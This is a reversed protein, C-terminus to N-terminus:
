LIFPAALCSPVPPSPPALPIGGVWQGRRQAYTAHAGQCPWVGPLALIPCGESGAAPARAAARPVPLVPAPCIPGAATQWRMVLWVVCGHPLGGWARLCRLAGVRWCACHRVCMLLGAGPMRTRVQSVGPRCLFQAPMAAVQPRQFRAAAAAAAMGAPMVSAWLPPPWVYFQLMARPSCRAAMNRRHASTLGPSGGKNVGCGAWAALSLLGVVVASGVSM